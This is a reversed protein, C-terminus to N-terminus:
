QLNIIVGIAAYHFMSFTYVTANDAGGELIRYGGKFTLNESARFTLALLVDEARGQPAALADGDLLLGFRETPKWHISFNILPVVGLDTKSSERGQDGQFAIYADRVKLTVGLGIDLNSKQLLYYRYTARYSNFKYTTNLQSNNPYTVGQFVVDKNLQGSYEMKLPAWLGLLESRESIKYAVRARTYFSSTSKLDASLSLFTGEDGPIRVDNYGTSVIGTEIDIIVQSKAATNCFLAFLIFALLTSLTRHMMTKRTFTSLKQM